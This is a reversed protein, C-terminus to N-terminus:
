YKWRSSARSGSGVRARVLMGAPPHHPPQNVADKSRANALEKKAEAKLAKLDALGMSTVHPAIRQALDYEVAREFSSPWNGLNLGYSAGNSVYSVYAVSIDALWYQGEDRYDELPPRLYGNMSIAILRVYDDPKEFANAYGFEPEVDTAAELAVTRAAFNWLGDELMAALSKDYEDDLKYRAENAETVSDLKRMRVIALAGNYLSLKTAM